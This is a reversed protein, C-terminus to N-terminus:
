ERKEGIWIYYPAKILPTYPISGYKYKEYIPQFNHELYLLKEPGININDFDFFIRWFWRNLIFMQRNRKDYKDSVYFDSSGIIGNDKLLNKSNDIMKYYTPIM